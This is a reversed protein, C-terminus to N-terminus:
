RPTGVYDVRTARIRGAEIAAREDEETARVLDAFFYPGKTLHVRQFREDLLRLLTSASHLRVGEAWARVYASWSQGSAVWEDRRRHLWGAEEDPGLREFCWDATAEDFEDWAWEVVVLTGGGVLTTAIRDLVETPDAVHHLSTSAVVADVDQVLEAQEFEARRYHEEDPAEPDVGLAQYGNSLLTPVFGGLPGCGIEVVQAPPAPLWGRVVPWV